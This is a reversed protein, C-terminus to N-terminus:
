RDVGAESWTVMIFSHIPLEHRITGLPGRMTKSHARSARTIPVPGSAPPGTHWKTGEPSLPKCLTAGRLPCTFLALDRLLACGQAAQAQAGIWQCFRWAMVGQVTVIKAPTGRCHRHDCHALLPGPGSVPCGQEPLAWVTSGGGSASASPAAERRQSLRRTFLVSM